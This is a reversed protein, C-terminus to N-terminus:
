SSKVHSSNLRTSKRDLPRLWSSVARLALLDNEIWQVEFGHNHLMDLNLDRNQCKIPENILLPVFSTAADYPIKMTAYRLLASEYIPLADHLSLTYIPTP